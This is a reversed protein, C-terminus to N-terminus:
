LQAKISVFVQAPLIIGALLFLNSPPIGFTASKVFAQGADWDYAKLARFKSAIIYSGEVIDSKVVLVVHEIVINPILSNVGIDTGRCIRSILYLKIGTMDLQLAGLEELLCSNLLYMFHTALLMYLALSTALYLGEVL